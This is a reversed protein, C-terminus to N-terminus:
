YSKERNHQVLTQQCDHFSSNIGIKKIDLFRCLGYDSHVLISEKTLKNIEEFFIDKNRITKDKTAFNYGFLSKENLFILKDLEFAEDIELPINKLNINKKIEQFNNIRNLYINLNEYVIKHVRDLSGQTQCCIIITKLIWLRNFVIIM